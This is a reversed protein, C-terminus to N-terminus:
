SMCSHMVEGADTNWKHRGPIDDIAGCDGTIYGDFGWKDRATVTLLEENACSPIGNVRNYSTRHLLCLSQGYSCM